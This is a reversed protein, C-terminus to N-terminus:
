LSCLFDAKVYILSFVPSLCWIRWNEALSSLRVSFREEKWGQLKNIRCQAGPTSRRRNLMDWCLFVPALPTNKSASSSHTTTSFVSTDRQRSSFEEKVRAANKVRQRVFVTHALQFVVEWPENAYPSSQPKPRTHDQTIIGSSGQSAKLSSLRQPLGLTGKLM